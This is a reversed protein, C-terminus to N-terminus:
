HNDKIILKAPSLNWTGSDPALKVIYTGASLTNVRFHFLNTGAEVQVPETYLVRGTIDCLLLNGKGKNQTEYKVTVESGINAPNPYVVFGETKNCNNAVRRIDSSFTTSGDMDVLKLKYYAVAADQHVSYTYVHGEAINTGAVTAINEFHNGDISRMVEFHSFNKESATEWTLAANCDDAEADFSLLNLPLPTNNLSVKQNSVSGDTTAFPATSGPTSGSIASQYFLNGYKTVDGTLPSSDQHMTWIAIGTSGGYPIQNQYDIASVIAGMAAACTSFTVSGLVTEGVPFNYTTTTTSASNYWAFTTNGYDTGTAYTFNPNGALAPGPAFTATLSAGQPNPIQLAFEFFDVYHIGVGSLPPTYLIDVMCTNTPNRRISFQANSQFTALLLALALIQKM